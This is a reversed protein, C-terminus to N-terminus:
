PIVPKTREFGNLDKGQVVAISKQFGTARIDKCSMTSVLRLRANLNIM